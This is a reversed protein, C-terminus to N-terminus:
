RRSFCRPDIGAKAALTLAEATVVIATSALLNNALKAVQGQGPRQGGVVFVNGLEALLERAGSVAAESGAVM